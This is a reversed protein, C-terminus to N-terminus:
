SQPWMVGGGNKISLFFVRRTPPHEEPREEPDRQFFVRMGASVIEHPGTLTRQETGPEKGTQGKPDKGWGRCPSLSDAAFYMRETREGLGGESDFDM